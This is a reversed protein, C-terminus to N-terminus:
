AGSGVAACLFRHGYEAARRERRRAEQAAHEVKDLVAVVSKQIPMPPLLFRTGAIKTIYMHKVTSGGVDLLLRWQMVPARLSWALFRPLVRATPRLVAVSQSICIDPCDVVAVRGLAGDKTLLVDGVKVRSKDTLDAEYAELTTHRATQFDIYGDKVDASTVKWPGEGTTPMPNTFGYTIRECIEGFTTLMWRRPTEVADRSYLDRLVEQHLLDTAASTLLSRASTTTTALACKAQGIAEIARVVRKQEELPPLAFKYKAADSWNVFLNVSGRFNNVLHQQFGDSRVVAELYSQILVDPNATRLYFNTHAGLGDFEVRAVKLKPGRTTCVVDGPQFITRIRPGFDSDGVPGWTEVRDGDEPIHKGIIYREFGEAEPDASVATSNIAVEGLKVRRWSNSLESM